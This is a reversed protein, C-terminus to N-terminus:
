EPPYSRLGNGSNYEASACDRTAQSGAGSGAAAPHPDPTPNRAEAPAAAPVDAIALLTLGAGWAIWAAPKTFGALWPSLVLALGVVLLPWHRGARRDSVTWAGYLVTAAGLAFTIGVSAPTTTTWAPTAATVLGSVIATWSVTNEKLRKVM